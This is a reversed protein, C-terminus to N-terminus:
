DNRRRGVGSRKGEATGEVASLALSLVPAVPALSDGLRKTKLYDGLGM